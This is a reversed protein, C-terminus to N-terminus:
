KGTALEKHWHSPKRSSGMNVLNRVLDTREESFVAKVSELPAPSPSVGSVSHLHLTISLLSPAPMQLTNFFCEVLDFNNQCEGRLCVHSMMNVAGETHVQLTITDILSLFVNILIKTTKYRAKWMLKVSHIWHQCLSSIQRIERGERM